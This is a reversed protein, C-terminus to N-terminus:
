GTIHEQWAPTYPVNDSYDKARNEDNMGNDVGYQALMLDFVTAVYATEGNALEVKKAPIKRIQVEDHDTHQFYEYEHPASGFYPFGVEVVEDHNDKLSLQLDVEGQKDKQELNWKGKEGWRYGIAGNPSTLRQDKSNIAITKWDPNNDEGLNDVLDAARLFRGQNLVKEGPELMVLMPMDTYRTVYDQFYQSQKNVYFEKLIVHGFAMALASDTGQRPSLWTDGFKSAESYDSTIVCTKTGKYRVETLFHADPTRTQPVNSGWVIIYNSNYWDASEPVDTQEGWVQPSAPPLDCYWDY